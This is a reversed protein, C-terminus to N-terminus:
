VSIAAGKSMLISTVKQSAFHHKEKEGDKTLTVEFLEDKIHVYTGYTNIILQM